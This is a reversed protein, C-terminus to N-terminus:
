PVCEEINSQGLFSARDPDPNVRRLWVGLVQQPYKAQIKAYIEPDREGDDGFLRFKVKPYATLIAEIRLM